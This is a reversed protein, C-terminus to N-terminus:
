FLREFDVFEEFKSRVDFYSAEIEDKKEKGLFFDIKIDSSRKELADFHENAQREIGSWLRENVKLCNVEGEWKILDQKMTALSAKEESVLPDLKLLNEQCQKELLGIELLLKESCDNIKKVLQKKELDVSSRLRDFYDYITVRPKNLTVEHIKIKNKLKQLMLVANSHIEGMDLSTIKADLLSQIIKNQPYHDSKNMNHRKSCFNCKSKKFDDEHESCVTEGCPLMVPDNLENMCYV